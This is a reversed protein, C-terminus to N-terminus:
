AKSRRNWGYNCRAHAPGLNSLASTGGNRLAVLHEATIKQGRKCPKHCIVCPLGQALAQAVIIARNRQYEGDYGRSSSSPRPHKRDWAAQDAPCRSGSPIVAGCDLCPRPLPM